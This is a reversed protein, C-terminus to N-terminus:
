RDGYIPPTFTQNARLTATRRLGNFTATFHDLFGNHGWIARSRVPTFGVRASWRHVVRGRSMLELDVTALWAPFPAGGAGRLDFRPGKEVGLRRHFRMPILTDTSGTDLLGAILWAESPGVVRVVIEPDYSFQPDSEGPLPEIQREVYNFKV